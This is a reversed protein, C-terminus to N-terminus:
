LLFQAMCYNSIDLGYSSLFVREETLELLKEERLKAIVGAYIDLIDTKFRRHFESRSVGETMRLGMFMFEEMEDKNTLHDLSDYVDTESAKEADVYSAEYKELDGTNSFRVSNMLSAAGIGFGIYDECRWYRSNHLCEYGDLAYNSIEYRHYGYSLLIDKTRHYMDRETDEDPLPPMDSELGYTDEHGEYIKYFPTGPEIILSYASIHEPKHNLECVYKLNEEYDVLSQGPLASMLDVNINGFGAERAWNYCNEFQARDHIRGLRRLEENKPSQLGISIRNIGASLYVKMAEIDATGPNCEITVEADGALNYESRVLEMIDFIYESDPLTPTGGGIFVSVVEYERCKDASMLIENKLANFYLAQQSEGEPFSLFDCYLCKQKCFPVHIYIGLTKM